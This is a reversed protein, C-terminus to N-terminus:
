RLSLEYNNKQVLIKRVQGFSGKGIVKLIEYRYAVHDHSVLVYSGNEDDFNSNNAGGVVCVRKKAQSGVFYIQLFQFYFFLLVRALVINNIYGNTISYKLTNM